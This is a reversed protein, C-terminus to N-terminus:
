FFFSPRTKKTFIADKDPDIYRVGDNHEFDAIKGYNWFPIPADYDWIFGYGKEHFYGKIDRYYEHNKLKEIDLKQYHSTAGGFINEGYLYGYGKPVYVTDIDQYYKNGPDGFTSFQAGTITDRYFYHRANSSDPIGDGNKDRYGSPIYGQRHYVNGNAYFDYYGYRAM